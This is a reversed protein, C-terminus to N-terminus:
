NCLYTVSINLDCIKVEFQDSIEFWHLTLGPAKRWFAWCRKEEAGDSFRERIM